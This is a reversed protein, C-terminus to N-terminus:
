DVASRERVVLNFMAQRPLDCSIASCAQYDVIVQVTRDGMPEGRQIVFEFPVAIRVTGDFIWFEEDLDAVRFSVPEPWVPQGVVTADGAVKISLPTYGEPTPASYVHWGTAIDVEVVAYLRQYRWYTPSDVGARIQVQEHAVDLAPGSEPAAIALAQALVSAGSERVRYNRQFRREAVVGREDLVFVGPYCVGRQDDRVGSGFEAHHEDLHEDLLGLARIVQSGEDALLPFQIGHNDGFVRLTEVSDYSVAFLAVGQEALAASVAQLEVLQV